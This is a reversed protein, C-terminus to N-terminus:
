EMGSVGSGFALGAKISFISGGLLTLMTLIVGVVRVPRNNTYLAFAHAIRGVILMIGLTSIIFRSQFTSESFFLLILCLPVFEAFNGHVRIALELEDIKGNGLSIQHKNRLFMIRASLGFYIIGLIGAVVWTIFM